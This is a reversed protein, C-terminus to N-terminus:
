TSRGTIADDLLRDDDLARDDDLLADLHRDLLQDLHRDVSRRSARDIDITRDIPDDLLPDFHRDISLDITWGPERPDGRRGCRGPERRSAM